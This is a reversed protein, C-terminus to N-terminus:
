NDNDPNIRRGCKKYFKIINGGLAVLRNENNVWDLSCSIMETSTTLFNEDTMYDGFTGLLLYKSAAKQYDYHMTNIRNWISMVDDNNILYDSYNHIRVVEELEKSGCDVVLLALLELSLDHDQYLVTLVSLLRACRARTIELQTISAHTISIVFSQAIKDILSDVGSYRTTYPSLNFHNFFYDNLESYFEKDKRDLIPYYLLESNKDIFEQGENIRVFENSIGAKFYISKRLDLAVDLALWNPIASNSVAEGLALKLSELCEDIDGERYYRLADYRHNFFVYLEPRVNSILRKRLEDYKVVNFQAVRVIHKFIADLM